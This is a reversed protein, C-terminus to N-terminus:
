VHSSAPRAIAGYLILDICTDFVRDLPRALLQRGAGSLTVAQVTIGFDGLCAADSYGADLQAYGALLCLIFLV